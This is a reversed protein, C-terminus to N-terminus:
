TSAETTTCADLAMNILNNEKIQPSMRIEKAVQIDKAVQINQNRVKLLVLQNVHPSKKGKM